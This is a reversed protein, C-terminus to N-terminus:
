DPLVEVIGMMGHDEHFLMHCHFVFVGPDVNRFDILIKTLSPTILPTSGPPPTGAQTLTAAPLAISDLYVQQYPNTAEFPSQEAVFTLQHIHFAHIEGTANYLYWEEVAHRHVKIWPIYPYNPDPTAGAQALWFPREVFPLSRVSPPPNRGPAYGTETVNWNPLGSTSYMTFTVARSVTVRPADAAVLAGAGTPHTHQQTVLAPASRPANANAFLPRIRLINRRPISPGIYGGCYPYGSASRNQPTGATSVITIPNVGRTAVMIDVRGSPPVFVNPEVVASPKTPDVRNTEFNWNVPVGDRAVVILPLVTGNADVTQINIYSDAAADIIRYRRTTNGVQTVTPGVAPTSVGNIVVPILAGNVQLPDGVGKPQTPLAACYAPAPSPWAFGSYWPPPSFAAYPVPTGAAATRLARVRTALSAYHAALGDPASLRTMDHMADMRASMAASPAARLVGPVQSGSAADKVILLVSAPEPALSASEVILAGALGGGVQDYSLGHLHAHYWYTGPPQTLPVSFTYVCSNPNPAWVLSKYVNDVYPDVHWGHTHFNTDNSAMWPVDPQTPVRPHNFYGIPTVGPQPTPMAGDFPLWACGDSTPIISSRPTPVPTSGGPIRNILTMAFTGGQRVRITPAEVYANAQAPTQVYCFHEVGNTTPGEMVYITFKTQTRADITPPVPLVGPPPPNPICTQTAAGAAGITTAGHARLPTTAVAIGAAVFSLVALSSLRSSVGM